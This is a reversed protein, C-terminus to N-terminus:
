EGSAGDLLLPPQQVFSAIRTDGFRSPLHLSLVTSPLCRALEKLEGRLFEGYSLHINSYALSLVVLTSPFTPIASLVEAFTTSRSDNIELTVVASFTTLDIPSCSLHLTRLTDVSSRALFGCIGRRQMRWDASCLSALRLNSLGTSPIPVHTNPYALESTFLLHKVDQLDELVDFVAPEFLGFDITDLRQRNPMRLWMRCEQFWNTQKPLALSTINSCASLVDFIQENLDFGGSDSIRPDSPDVDYVETFSAAQVLAAVTPANQLVHLLRVATEAFQYLPLRAEPSPPQQWIQEETRRVYLTVVEVTCYLSRRGFDLFSKSLLCVRALDAKELEVDGLIQEILERPLSPPM